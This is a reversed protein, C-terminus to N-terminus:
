HKGSHSYWNANRGAIYSLELQEADKNASLKDTNKIKTM